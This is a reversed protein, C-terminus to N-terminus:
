CTFIIPYSVESADTFRELEQNIDTINHSTGVYSPPNYDDPILLDGLAEINYITGVEHTWNTYIENINEFGKSIEKLYYDTANQVISQFNENYANNVADILQTPSLLPPLILDPPMLAEMSIPAFVDVSKGSVSGLKDSVADMVAVADIEVLDVFMM